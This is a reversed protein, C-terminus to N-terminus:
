RPNLVRTKTKAVYYYCSWKETFVPAGMYETRCAMYKRGGPAFTEKKENAALNNTAGPSIDPNKRINELAQSHVAIPFDCTNILLNFRPESGNSVQLCNLANGNFYNKEDAGSSTANGSGNGARGGTPIDIGGSGGSTSLIPVGGAAGSTVSTSQIDIGRSAGPTSRGSNRSAMIGIAAGLLASTQAENQTRTARMEREQERERDRAQMQAEEAAAVRQEEERIRQTNIEMQARTQGSDGSLVALHTFPDVVKGQVRVEFHFDRSGTSEAIKQGRRVQAGETVTVNQLNVYVTMLAPSHRLLVMTGDGVMGVGSYSVVSDAAATVPTGRPAKFDIGKSQASFSKSLAGESPWSLGSQIGAQVPSSSVVNQQAPVVAAPFSSQASAANTGVAPPAPLPPILRITDGVALADTSSLNNWRVIDQWKLGSEEGISRLSDGPRVVYYGPPMASAIQSALLLPALLIVALTGTKLTHFFVM